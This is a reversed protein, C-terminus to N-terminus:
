EVQGVKVRVKIYPGGTGVPVSQGGKGCFGPWIDFDKSVGTIRGLTELTYGAIGVNRLPETVEGKEIKYGEQIGFQFTGDPGTQGGLPSSLLYGEKVEQILEEKTRDGPLMFTNRMRVLVPSRFDEARANGTPKEGLYAAYYRDVLFESVKGKDVIKVDRSEVGEDDYPLVGHAMPLDSKGSDIVTVFDEAIKRGRLNGLIGNTALDAEALHGLAEHSFVGVVDPALVVDSDGGRPTKGKLQNEVRRKVTEVVDNVDFVEFPYGLYTAVSTSASAVVNGERAIARVSLYTLEFDLTIERDESSYYEKHVKSSNFRVNISRIRPDSGLIADRLKVVDAMIEEPSKNVPSKPSIKINNHLPPLMVINVREDGYASDMATKVIDQSLDSFYAYGWNGQFLVRLSGGKDKGLSSVQKLSESAFLSLEEVDYLRIDSFTAGRDEARKLLEHM